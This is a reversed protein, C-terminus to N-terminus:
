FIWSEHQKDNTKKNLTRGRGELEDMLRQKRSRLAGAPRRWDRGRLVLPRSVLDTKDNGKTNGNGDKDNGKGHDTNGDGDKDCKREGDKDTRKRVKDKDTRKRVKDNGNGGTTDRAQNGTVLRQKLGPAIAGCAFCIPERSIVRRSDGSGICDVGVGWEDCRMCNPQYVVPEVM